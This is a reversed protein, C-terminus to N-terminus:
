YGYSPAIPIYNFKEDFEELFADRKIRIRDRRKQQFDKLRGFSIPMHGNFDSYMAQRIEQKHETDADLGDKLNIISQKKHKIYEIKKNLQEVQEDADVILLDLYEDINTAKDIRIQEM